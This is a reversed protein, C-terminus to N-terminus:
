AAQQRQAVLDCVLQRIEDKSKGAVMAKLVAQCEHELYGVARGGLNIPPPTLGDQERNFLTTKSLGLMNLVSPRRIIKYPQNTSNQQLM